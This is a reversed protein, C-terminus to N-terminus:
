TNFDMRPYKGILKYIWRHFKHISKVPDAFMLICEDSVFNIGKEKCFGIANISSSGQQMWVNKINLDFAVRVVDETEFPPVITIIGDIPHDIKFLSTYLKINNSFGGIRNVAFVTYGNHKLHNYVAAGFGKGTRSVGIIAINKLKLFSKISESKM